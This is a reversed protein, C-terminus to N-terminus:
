SLRRSRSRSASRAAAQSRAGVRAGRLRLGDGRGPQRHEGEPLHHVLQEPVTGVRELLSGLFLDLTRIGRRRTPAEFCKFRIGIFDPCTGTELADAVAGAATASDADEAADGRDGYGDEFDLRLDEIPATRLKTDVRGAVQEAVEGSLGLDAALAPCGVTSNSWTSPPPAGSGRCLPPTATQRCTSRTCRSAGATMAPTPRRLCRTPTVSSLTSGALFTKQCFPMRWRLDGAEYAPFPSFTSSLRTSRVADAILAKAPEYYRAFDDAAVEGRLREAEEDLLRSVLERTVTDGTDDLVSANAIQQWVQSRSIEATAADEMLNHIAVAGNGSLWVATYALAM